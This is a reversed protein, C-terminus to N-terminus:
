NRNELSHNSFLQEISFLLVLPQWTEIIELILDLRRTAEKAKTNLNCDSVQNAITKSM